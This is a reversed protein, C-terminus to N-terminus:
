RKSSVVMVLGIVILLIPVILNSYSHMWGFFFDANILVGIATLILGMKKEAKTCLFIIGAIVFLVGVSMLREGYPILSLVGTKNLLFILGFVMITLGYPLRDNNKKAM